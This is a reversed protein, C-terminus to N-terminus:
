LREKMKLLEQTVTNSLASGGHKDPHCLQLLKRLLDKTLPPAAGPRFSERFDQNYRREQQKEQENAREYKRDNNRDFKNSEADKQAKWAKGKPSNLFCAICEKSWEYKPTFMKGCQECERPEYTAM